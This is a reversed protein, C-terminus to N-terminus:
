LIVDRCLPGKQKCFNHYGGAAYVTVPAFLLHLLLRLYVDLLHAPLHVCMDYWWIQLIIAYGKVGNENM